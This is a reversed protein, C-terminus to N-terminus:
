PFSTQILEDLFHLTLTAAEIVNIGSILINYQSKLVNWLNEKEGIFHELWIGLNDQIEWLSFDRKFLGLLNTSMNSKKGVKSCEGDDWLVVM